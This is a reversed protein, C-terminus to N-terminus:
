RASQEKGIAEEVSAKLKGTLDDLNLRGASVADRLVGIVKRPSLRKTQEKDRIASAIHTAICGIADLELRVANVHRDRLDAVYTEGASPEISVGDKEMLSSEFWVIDITDARDRNPGAVLALVIDTLEEDSEAACFWLSLENGQTKLDTTVADAAISGSPLEAKIEWKARSVKRVLYKM